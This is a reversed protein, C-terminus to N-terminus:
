DEIRVLSYRADDKPLKAIQSLSLKRLVREAHRVAVVRVNEPSGDRTKIFGLVYVDCGNSFRPVPFEVRGDPSVPYDVPEHLAVRMTHKQPQSSELRIQVHTPKSSLHLANVCGTDLLALPLVALFPLARMM